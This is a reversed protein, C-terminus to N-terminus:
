ISERTKNIGILAVTNTFITVACRYPNCSIGTVLWFRICVSAARMLRWNKTYGSHSPKPLCLALYLLHARTGLPLDLNILYTKLGFLSELDGEVEIAGTLYSEALRLLKRHLILERLAGPERFIVSCAADFTGM